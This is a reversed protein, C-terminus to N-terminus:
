LRLWNCYCRWQRQYYHRDNCSRYEVRLAEDLGKADTITKLWMGHVFAVCNPLTYGKSDRPICGAYGGYDKDIFNKDSRSPTSTYPDFRYTM